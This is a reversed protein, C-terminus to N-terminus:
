RLSELPYLPPSLHPHGPFTWPTKNMVGSPGTHSMSVPNQSVVGDSMLEAGARVETQQGSDATWTSVAEGSGWDQVRQQKVGGARQGERKGRKGMGVEKPVESKVGSVWGLCMNDIEANRMGVLPCKGKIGGRHVSVVFLCHHSKQKSFLLFGIRGESGKFSFTSELM